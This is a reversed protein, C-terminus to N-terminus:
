LLIELYDAAGIVEETVMNDLFPSGSFLLPGLISVQDVSFNLLLYLLSTQFFVSLTTLCFYLSEPLTSHLSSCKFFLTCGVADFEVLYECFCFNFIVM